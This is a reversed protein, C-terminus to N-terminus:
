PRPENSSCNDSIYELSVHALKPAPVGSNAPSINKVKGGPEAKHGAM